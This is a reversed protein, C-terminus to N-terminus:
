LELLVRRQYAALVAGEGLVKSRETRISEDDIHQRIIDLVQQQRNTLKEM